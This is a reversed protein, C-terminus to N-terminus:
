ELIIITGTQMPHDPACYAKSPDWPLGCAFTFVGAKDAVFQITESGGGPELLGTEIDFEPIELTHYFKKPNSINLVVTDGKNVIILNADWKHMEVKGITEEDDVEVEALFQIEDMVIDFTRTQPEYVSVDIKIINNDILFKIANLVEGEGIKGESFWLFNNKIWPPLLESKTESSLETQSSQAYVSTSFM